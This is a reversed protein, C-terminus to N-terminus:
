YSWDAYDMRYKQIRERLQGGRSELMSAIVIALVGLLALAIWYNVDFYQFANVFLHGVGLFSLLGGTVLLLRQKLKYSLSLLSVGTAVCILSALLTDEVMLNLLLPATLFLMSMFQYFAKMSQSRQALEYVMGASLVGGCLVSLTFVETNALMAVITSLGASIAVLMSALELLIKWRSQEAIFQMCHRLAIFSVISIASFMVADPSYLWVNRGLLIGLPLFQLLISIMGEFTKVETRQRMTKTSIFLTYIGLASTMITVWLPDRVPLLLAFNSIVFLTTMRGSMGRALTRFGLVVVPLLIVTAFGSLFLSTQLGGVSWTVFSPYGGPFLSNTGAFIFAGLIAFNVPVSVLALMLLLRPGKGEQLYHGSALAILALLGTHGLLMCYRILDSGGEWGRFLFSYLSFLVAIAGFGRLLLPLKAAWSNQPFTNSDNFRNSELTHNNAITNM